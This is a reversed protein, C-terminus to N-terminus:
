FCSIKKYNILLRPLEGLEKIETMTFYYTQKTVFFCGLTYVFYLYFVEEIFTTVAKAIRNDKQLTRTKTTDCAVEQYTMGLIFWVIIDTSM